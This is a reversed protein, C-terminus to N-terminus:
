CTHYYKNPFLINNIMEVEAMNNIVRVSKIIVRLTIIADANGNINEDQM